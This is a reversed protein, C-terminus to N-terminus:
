ALTCAKVWWGPLAASIESALCDAAAASECLAFCTAGSGSMRSFLAEPARDLASLVEGILPQLTV